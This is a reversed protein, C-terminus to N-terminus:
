RVGGAALEYVHLVLVGVFSTGVYSADGPISHGTGFVAWTSILDHLEDPAVEAWLFVADGQAGVHVVRFSPGHHLVRGEPPIEYKFVVKGTVTCVRRQSRPYFL